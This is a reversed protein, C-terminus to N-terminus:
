PAHTVQSWLRAVLSRARGCFHPVGDCRNRVSSGHRADRSPLATRPRTGLTGTYAAAESAMSSELTGRMASAPLTTSRTTSSTM